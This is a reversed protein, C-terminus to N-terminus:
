PNNYKRIRWHNACYWIGNYIGQSPLSCGPEACTENTPKKHNYADVIDPDHYKDLLIKGKIIRKIESIAYEGSCKFWEKNELKEQFQDHILREINQPDEVLADYIVVYPYPLGTGGLESARLIPDKRSFGIKVLGPMANNTIIYIWGRIEHDM